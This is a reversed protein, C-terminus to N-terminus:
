NAPVRPRWAGARVATAITTGFVVLGIAAAAFVGTLGFWRVVLWAGGVATLLRGCSALLPWTLRGAGQSAFYLGLGIGLFAYLPGVIVLYRAGIAHVEPDTSFIGIWLQPSITAILGVAGTLTATLATGVWAAHHAQRLRGAGMNMGVLTVLAAGFGFILPSLVYELRVALGFGALAHAGFQGVLATLLALTVNTLAQNLSAPVGVRLIDWILRPQLHIQRFRPKLATRGSFVYILYVLSSFGFATISAVPVGILGLQPFPGWGRILTPALPVYLAINAVGLFAPLKMNGTGRVLSGLTNSLWYVIAGGFIVNSYRVAGELAAGSGGMSAYLYPAITTMVITFLLAMGVAILLANAVLANADDHKGAGLARAVASAVGGGMANGAMTFMLIVWPFVLTVGALADAGLWSIYYIDFISVTTQLIMVAMTPAALRLLTPLVPADLLERTRENHTKSPSSSATPSVNKASTAASPSTNM